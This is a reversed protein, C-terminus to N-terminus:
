LKRNVVAIYCKNLAHYLEYVHIFGALKTFCKFHNSLLSGRDTNFTPFKFKKCIWHSLHLRHNWAWHRWISVAWIWFTCVASQFQQRHWFYNWLWYTSHRKKKYTWQKRRRHIFSDGLVCIKGKMTNGAAFAVSTNNESQSDTHM